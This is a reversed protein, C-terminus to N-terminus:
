GLLESLRRVGAKKFAMRVIQELLHANPVHIYSLSVYTKKDDTAGIVVAGDASWIQVQAWSCRVMENSGLFKHKTLTIGDDRVTAEGFRVESGAKLARLIDSMLRACVARWLKEIFKTYTAERRISVVSETRSDGFAVTYDTGTSIGNVSNRVGGWRVRTITDLPYTKDKWSVGGASISLTDKFVAGVDASFAIEEEWERLERTSKQRQMAIDTLAQTDASVREALDPIEAFVESLLKTLRQSQVLLDHENFLDIALSRIEYALDRSADHDMGRAKFSVQLPQAVKDWNRIVGDLRDILPRVAGEGSKACERVASVLKEVNQSERQLFAQTELAYSDVIQDILEPAHEAGFNTAGDVALTMTKVLADAPLRNLADKIADRFYRKREALESEVQGEARVEPFGSVSRDENVAQLVEEADIEDVRIAMEQIFAAIEHPSDQSDVAEFAAAMLNCHALAPLGVETRAAMPDALLARALSHARRPSVGPLWAVEASLRTRPNTLDSRAKQCKAHDIELSREEALDVIRRRDDRSSASLLSFPNEQLATAQMHGRVKRLESPDVKVSHSAAPSAQLGPAGLTSKGLAEQHSRSHTQDAHMSAVAARAKAILSDPASLKLHNRVEHAFHALQADSSVRDSLVMSRVLEDAASPSARCHPCAHIPGSKEGGCKFCIAASM